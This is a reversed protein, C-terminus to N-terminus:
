KFCRVPRGARVSELLYVNAMERCAHGLSRQRAYKGLGDPVRLLKVILNSERAAHIPNLRPSVDFNNV